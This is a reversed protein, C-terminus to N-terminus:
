EQRKWNQFEEIIAKKLKRIRFDQTEPFCSEEELCKKPRICNPYIPCAACKEFEPWREKYSLSKEIDTIGNIVDGCFDDESNENCKVLKGNPHIAIASPSDAMCHNTRIETNLGRKVDLGLKEIHEEIEIQNKYLAARGEDSRRKASPGTHEFLSHTYVNLKENQGFRQYIEDVLKHMDSVNYEDINLRIKVSMNSRLIQGINDMVQEYPNPDPYIYRKIKNYIKESGDLTIQISSLNWLSLAKEINENKMLFGNSVMTSEFEIEQEKLQSCIKDIVDAKYLPEGGFWHLQIRKEGKNNIIYKIVHKLTEENMSDRKWGREFCYFCRANCDKTPLITFKSLTKPEPKIISLSTRLLTVLATEQTGEPVLFWNRILWHKTDTSQEEKKDILVLQKTLANYYLIGEEIPIRVCFHLLRYTRENVISQEFLITQAVENAKKIIIMPMLFYFLHRISYGPM